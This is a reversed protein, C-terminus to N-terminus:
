GGVEVQDGSIVAFLFVCYTENDDAKGQLQCGADFDLKTSKM